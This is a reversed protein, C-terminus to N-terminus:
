LTAKTEGRAGNQGGTNIAYQTSQRVGSLESIVLRSQSASRRRPDCPLDLQEPPTLDGFATEPCCGAGPCSYWDAVIRDTAWTEPLATKRPFHQLLQNFTSAVEVIPIGEQPCRKPSAGM